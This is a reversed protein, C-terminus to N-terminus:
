TLSPITRILPRKGWPKKEGISDFLRKAYDNTYLININIQFFSKTLRKKQFKKVCAPVKDDKTIVYKLAGGRRLDETLGSVQFYAILTDKAIFRNGAQSYVHFGDFVFSKNADSLSSPRAANFGLLLLSIRLSKPDQPVSVNQEFSTFEQSASNKVLLSFRYDGPILPFKDTFSFPRQRLKVFQDETFNLPM